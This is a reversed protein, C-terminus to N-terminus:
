VVLVLHSIMWVMPGSVMPVTLGMLKQNAWCVVDGKILEARPLGSWTPRAGYEPSLAIPRLCRSKSVLWRPWAIPSEIHKALYPLSRMNLIIALIYRHRFLCAAGSITIRSGAVLSPCELGQVRGRFLWLRFARSFGHSSFVHVSTNVEVGRVLARWYEESYSESSGPSIMGVLAHLDVLGRSRRLSSVVDAAAILAPLYCTKVDETSDEEGGTKYYPLYACEIVLVQDFEDDCDAEDVRCRLYQGPVSRPAGSVHM